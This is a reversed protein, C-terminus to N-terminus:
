NHRPLRQGYVVNGPDGESFLTQGAPLERIHRGNEFLTRLNM